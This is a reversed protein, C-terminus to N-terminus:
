SRQLGDMKMGPVFNRRNKYTLSVLALDQTLTRVGLIASM